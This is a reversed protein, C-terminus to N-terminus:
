KRGLGGVRSNVRKQRTKLYKLLRKLASEATGSVGRNLLRIVHLKIASREYSATGKNM